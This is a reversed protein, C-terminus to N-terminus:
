PKQLIHELLSAQAFLRDIRAGERAFDSNGPVPREPSALWEGWHQIQAQFAELERRCEKRLASLQLGMEEYSMPENM